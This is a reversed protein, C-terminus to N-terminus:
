WRRKLRAAVEKAADTPSLRNGHSNKLETMVEEVFFALAGHWPFNEFFWEYLEPELRISTSIKAMPQAIM